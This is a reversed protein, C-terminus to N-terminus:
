PRAAPRYGPPPPPLDLNTAPTECLLTDHFPDVIWLCNKERKVVFDRIYRDKQPANSREPFYAIVGDEYVYAGAMQIEYYTHDPMLDVSRVRFTHDASLETGADGLASHAWYIGLIDAKTPHPPRPARVYLLDSGGTQSVQLTYNLLRYANTFSDRPTKGSAVSLQGNPHVQCRGTTGSREDNDITCSGDAHFEIDDPVWPGVPREALLFRGILREDIGIGRQSKDVKPGPPESDKGVALLQPRHPTAFTPQQWLACGLAFLATNGLPSM